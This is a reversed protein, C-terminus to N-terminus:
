YVFRGPNLLNGPDFEAKVKRMWTEAVTTGGWVAQRTLESAHTSSIVVLRGAAAVAAPQLRGILVRSIATAPFDAFRVVVVGSGAHAQVSAAPDIELVLRVFDVVASPRLSAKIVMPSAPSEAGAAFEILRHWLEASAAPEITESKASERPAGSRM